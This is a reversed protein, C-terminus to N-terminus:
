EGLDIIADQFIACDDSQQSKVSSINGLLGLSLILFRLNSKSISIVM